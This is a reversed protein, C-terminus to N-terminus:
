KIRWIRYAIEDNDDIRRVTFCGDGFKKRLQRAFRYVSSRSNPETFLISDGVKILSLVEKFEEKTRYVSPVPVNKDIKYTRERM